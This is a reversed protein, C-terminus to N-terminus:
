KKATADVNTLFERVAELMVTPNDWSTIHAAGPILKYKAGPTADAFSKIIAPGVEDFEGVTYLVPVKISPLGARVNYSKLTGTIVFESPGQMYNYIGQNTQKMTSDLDAAPPHRFVYLAYFENIANEYSPTNYQKKADAEKIAKQASDSLTVVLSNARKVYAAADFVASGFVISQVHEPHARYYEYVLITGWSHGLLNVKDYGLSARLSDLEAVFHAITFKSTDTLGDSKGGGLQDYRVITRQDGLAELPKLYYSNFGPGGHVMILPVGPGGGSKRYWIKGDAVPLMSEGAPLATAQPPAPAASDTKAPASDKCAVAFLLPIATIWARRM